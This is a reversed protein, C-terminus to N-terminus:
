EIILGSIKFFLSEQEALKSKLTCDAYKGVAENRLTFGGIISTEAEEYRMKPISSLEKISEFDDRSAVCVTEGSGFESAVSDLERKLYERYEPTKTFNKLKSSAKEFVEDATKRRNQRLIGSLENERKSLAVKIEYELEARYRETEREFKEKLESDKKKLIDNKEEELERAIKEKECLAESFLVNAFKTLSDNAM